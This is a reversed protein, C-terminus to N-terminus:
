KNELADCIDSFSVKIENGNTRVIIIDQIGDESFCYNIPTGLNAAYGDMKLLNGKIEVKTNDEAFVSKGALCM